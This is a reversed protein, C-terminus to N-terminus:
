GQNDRKYIATCKRSRHHQPKEESSDTPGLVMRVGVQEEGKIYKRTRNKAATLNREKWEDNKDGRRHSRLAAEFVDLDPVQVIRLHRMTAVVLAVIKNDTVVEM